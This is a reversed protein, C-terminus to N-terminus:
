GRVGRSADVARVGVYTELVASLSYFVPIGAEEAWAVELDAGASEGPLRLVLDSALVWPKDQELWTGWDLTKGIVFELFVSLQPTYVAFGSEVLRQTVVCAKHIDKKMDDSGTIPGAVYVRPRSAM